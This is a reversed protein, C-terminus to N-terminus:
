HLETPHREDGGGGGLVCASMSFLCLSTTARRDAIIVERASCAGLKMDDFVIPGHEGM